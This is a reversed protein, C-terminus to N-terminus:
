ESKQMRNGVLSRYAQHLRLTIQGLQGVGISRGDWSSVWSVERISGTVFAEDASLAEALPLPREKVPIRLEGALELLIERTVGPLIKATRPPTILTGHKVVFLNSSSGEQVYGDEVFIAEDCGARDAANRALVNPLLAISKIWCRKWREDDVSHLKAPHVSGPAVLAPLGRVYFLLTPSLLEPYLHNRPAVGRTVQLYLMANPLDAIELLRAIESTLHATDCPLTIEVADCSIKLRELHRFLGFPRGGYVRLTEYVGDAFQFGRDEVAVTGESLPTIAGNMWLLEPM